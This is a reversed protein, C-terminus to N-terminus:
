PVEQAERLCRLVDAQRQLSVDDDAHEVGAHPGVGRGEGVLAEARRRASPLACALVERAVLVFYRKKQTYHVCLVTKCTSVTRRSKATFDDTSAGVVESRVTAGAQRRQVLVPVPGVRRGGHGTTRDAVDAEAAQGGARGPTRHRAGPQGDVIHAAVPAAAVGVDERSEVIGDGVANIHDGEGDPQAAPRHRVELVRGGYPGEVGHLAPYHRGGRGPVGPESGAVDAVDRRPQQGDGRATDIAPEDVLDNKSVALGYHHEFLVERWKEGMFSVQFSINWSINYHEQKSM